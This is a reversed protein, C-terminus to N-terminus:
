CGNRVVLFYLSSVGVLHRANPDWDKFAEIISNTNVHSEVWPEPYLIGERTYDAEFIALNVIKGQAVPYSVTHQVLIEAM